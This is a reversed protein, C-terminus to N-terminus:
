AIKGFLEEVKKFRYDFIKNLESKVLLSNMMNGLPGLPLQYHVVDRIETGGPISKFWHQHHWLKYPGVRQEDIFYEGEKINKIETMWTLPIGLLPRVTYTIIMGSYMVGDGLDSTVVFDMEKPTIKALNGPQSFFNWAENVSIPIQQTRELKFIKM